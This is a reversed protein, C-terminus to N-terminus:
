NGDEAAQAAEIERLVAWAKELVRSRKPVAGCEINCLSGLGVGARGALSTRSIGLRERAERLEQGAHKEIVTSM